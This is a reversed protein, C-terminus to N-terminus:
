DTVIVVGDMGFHPICFYDYRGPDNFLYSFTAGPGL